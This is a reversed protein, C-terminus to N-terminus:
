AGIISLSHGCQMLNKAMGHGMLGVGVFGVNVMGREGEYRVGLEAMQTTAFLLELMQM